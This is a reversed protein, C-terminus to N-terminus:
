SRVVGNQDLWTRIKHDANKVEGEYITLSDLVNAGNALKRIDGAVRGLGGGGHTCFPLITKGAFNNGALFSAVPPAMTNFWNPTGLIITSFSDLNEMKEALEPQFGDRTEKKAQAECTDYDSSYATAPRIEFLEAGTAKRIQEAVDRTHGLYSFYAILTTNM